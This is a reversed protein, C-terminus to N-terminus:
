PSARATASAAQTADGSGDSASDLDFYTDVRLGVPLEVSPELDVLVELVRTDIRESPEGSLLNKRGMLMGIESVHGPFRQAGYADAQVYAAQGTHVFRIDAEDVEARVRLQAIDGVLVIPTDLMASVQEGPLRLKRLVQGDVPSRVLTNELIARAEALRAEALAVEAELRRVDDARPPAVILEHQYRARALQASAVRYESEARDLDQRSGLDRAALGRQRDLEVKALGLVAEAEEVAAAAEDREAQRAGNLLKEFNARAVAVAAEARKVIAAQEDNQLAALVQGEAVDDGVNVFVAQLRGPMAAGVRVEESRPEVRGLAVIRSRPVAIPLERTADSDVPELRAEQFVLWGTLAAAGVLMVGILFGRLLM